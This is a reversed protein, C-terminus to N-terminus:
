RECITNSTMPPIDTGGMYPNTPLMGACSASTTIEPWLDCKALASNEQGSLTPIALLHKTTGRKVCGVRRTVPNGMVRLCYGQETQQASTIEWLESKQGVFALIEAPLTAAITVATLAAMDGQTELQRIDNPTPLLSACEACLWIHLFDHYETAPKGCQQETELDIIQYCIREMNEGQALQLPHRRM